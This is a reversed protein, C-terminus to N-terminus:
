ISSVLRESAYKFDCCGYYIRKDCIVWCDDARYCNEKLTRLM